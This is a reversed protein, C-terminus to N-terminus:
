EEWEIKVTTIYSSDANGNSYRCGEIAAQESDWRVNVDKDKYINIWAEKKEVAMFLDTQSETQTDRQGYFRGDDDWTHIDFLDSNDYEAILGYMTYGNILRKFSLDKVERGDRTVVKAGAMAAQKNFKKM